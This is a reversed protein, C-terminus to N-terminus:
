RVSSSQKPAQWCQTPMVVTGTIFWIHVWLLWTAPLFEFLAHRHLLIWLIHPMNINWDLWAVEPCSGHPSSSNYLYCHSFAQLCVCEVSHWLQPVCFPVVLPFYFSSRNGSSPLIIIWYRYSLPVFIVWLMTSCLSTWYLHRDALVPSAMWKTSSIQKIVTAVQFWRIGWHCRSSPSSYDFVWVFTSYQKLLLLLLFQM